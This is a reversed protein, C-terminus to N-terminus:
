TRFVKRAFRDRAVASLSQQIYSRAAPQGHDIELRAALSLIEWDRCFAASAVLQSFL